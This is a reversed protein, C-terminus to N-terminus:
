RVGGAGNPDLLRERLRKAFKQKEEATWLIDSTDYTRDHPDQGRQPDFGIRVTVQKLPLTALKRIVPLFIEQTFEICKALEVQHNILLWLERLGQLSRVLSINMAHDWTFMTVDDMALRLKKILRKQFASRSNMFRTFSPVDNLSFINSEWLIQNAEAYIQRCTRLLILHTESEYRQIKAQETSQTNCDSDAM